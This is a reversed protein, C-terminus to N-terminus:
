LGQSKKFDMAKQCASVLQESLAPLQPYDTWLGDEVLDHIQGAIETALRKLKAFEKKQDQDKDSM